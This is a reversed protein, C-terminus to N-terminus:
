GSVEVANILRQTIRAVRDPSEIQPIHGLGSMLHLAFEGEAAIGQAPPLIHDRRGWLIQTPVEIRQLAARLDFSQVGDPFLSLSMDAQCARLAPDDRTRMAARAYDDSIGAPTATLRRLWPALSEARSARVIGNLAAADIEPGLGAPAILTLSAIRRGRIDALALALAAGLSHGILHVDQVDKTADDFAEVLMRSLDQFGRVHRKPSKGHGPLDIRVLPRASGFSKELPAWSQSDATFGHLLVIPKGEGKRRSISLPGNEPTWGPSGLQESAAPTPRPAPRAIVDDRQVRGLPGTGAIDSLTVGFEKAAKRAAPTARKATTAVMETIVAAKIPAAAEVSAVTTAGTEVVIPPAGVAMGEPYIWAVVAGVPVKDGPKATIHHLRGTAPAEVEMAAKDTEIDFLAAGQKVVEGEAVHWVALTGHSMDMDVKPLIVEIPQPGHQPAEVASSPAAATAGVAEGEAYLWAITTGVPVKDGPKATVGHLYGTAPSEVEMAAKDTEIDFLPADKQVLDGEAVHWTALTGHSMDMDVKPLIVEVPM